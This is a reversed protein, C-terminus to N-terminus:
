RFPIWLYIMEGTPKVLSVTHEVVSDKNKLERNVRLIYPPPNIPAPKLKFLARKSKFTESRLITMPRGEGFLGQVVGIDIGAKAAEKVLKERVSLDFHAPYNQGEVSILNPTQYTAIPQNDELGVTLGGLVGVIGTAVQVVENPNVKSDWQFNVREGM